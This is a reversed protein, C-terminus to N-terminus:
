PFREDISEVYEDISNFKIIQLRKNYAEYGASHIIMKGKIKGTEDMELDFTITQAEKQSAKLDVWASPKDFSMLRGKDNICRLPLLGFPLLPDTADLLYTTEDLTVQCIVYNFDSLVPFLQNVQGNSRTSLIIPEASIGASNMATVLALNIDGVNGSRKEFAKKLGDDSYKGYYNNRKNWSKIYSYIAKAKDLTTNKGAIVPELKDEFFNKKKLQVGFNEHTKLEHDVDKWEKTVKHKIGHDNYESLEFYIASKFNSAATMYDEEIFAPVNSM